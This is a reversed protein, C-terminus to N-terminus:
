TRKDYYYIIQEITHETKLLGSKKIQTAWDTDEGHNIEPFKFQKAISARICNLHNPYREYKVQKIDMDLAYNGNTRYEQYKISHEFLQPNKGDVTYEGVLSCCDVDKEIGEMLLSIYNSSVRDDDDVFAVYKGTATELLGNRKTGISKNGIHYIIEIEGFRYAQEEIYNVLKCFMEARERITPILISLKNM